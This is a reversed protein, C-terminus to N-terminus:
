TDQFDQRQFSSTDQESSCPHEALQLLVWTQVSAKIDVIESKSANACVQHTCTLSFSLDWLVFQAGLELSHFYIGVNQAAM